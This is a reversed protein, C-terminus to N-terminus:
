SHDGLAARRARRRARYCTRCTRVKRGKATAWKINESTFEHGNVCHTKASNISQWTHSSRAANEGRTVAELHTPNFCGRHECTRGGPCSADSNHCVHDITAGHPIPGVFLEYALIHAFTHRGGVTLPAYGHTSRCGRYLWCGNAQMDRAGMLRELPPDRRQRVKLDQWRGDSLLQKRLRQYCTGCRNRRPKSVTRGCDACPGPHSAAVM